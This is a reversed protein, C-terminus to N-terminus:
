KYPQINTITSSKRFRIHKSSSLCASGSFALTDTYNAILKCWIHLPVGNLHQVIIVIPLFISKRIKLLKSFYNNEM